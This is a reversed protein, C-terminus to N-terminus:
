DKRWIQQSPVQRMVQSVFPHVAAAGIEHFIIVERAPDREHLMELAQRVQEVRKPLSTLFVNEFAYAFLEVHMKANLAALREPAFAEMNLPELASWEAGTRAVQDKFESGTLFM